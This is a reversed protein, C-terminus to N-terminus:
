LYLLFRSHSCLGYRDFVPLHRNVRRGVTYPKSLSLNGVQESYESSGYARINSRNEFATNQVFVANDAAGVASVPVDDFSVAEFHDDCQGESQFGFIGLRESAPDYFPRRCWCDDPLHRCILISHQVSGESLCFVAWATTKINAQSPANSTLQM